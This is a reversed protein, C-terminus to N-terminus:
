AIIVAGEMAISKRSPVIDAPADKIRRLVHIFRVASTRAVASIM